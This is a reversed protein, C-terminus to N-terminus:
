KEQWKRETMAAGMGSFRAKLAPRVEIIPDRPQHWLSGHYLAKPALPM